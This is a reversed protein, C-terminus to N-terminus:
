CSCVISSVILKTAPCHTCEMEGQRLRRAQFLKLLLLGIALTGVVVCVAAVSMYSNKPIEQKDAVNGPGQHQDRVTLNGTVKLMFNCNTIGSDTNVVCEYPGEDEPQTEKVLLSVVKDKENAPPMPLQYKPSLPMRPNSSQQNFINCIFVPGGKHLGNQDLRWWVVKEINVNGPSIGNFNVSCELVADKGSDVQIVQKLDPGQSLSKSTEMGTILLFMLTSLSFVLAM